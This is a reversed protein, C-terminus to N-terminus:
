VPASMRQGSANGNNISTSIAETTTQAIEQGRHILDQGVREVEQRLRAAPGAMAKSAIAPTPILIGAVIGAALCGLGVSLPHEDLTRTVQEKSKQAMARTNEGVANAADKTRDLVNHVKDGIANASAPLRARHMDDSEYHGWDGNVAARSKKNHAYVAWGIGAGILLLPIPNAKISDGVSRMAQETSQSIKRTIETAKNQGDSTRFFGLVEDLLHKGKLRDTLANLNGDMRERTADIQHRINEPDTTTYDSTNM